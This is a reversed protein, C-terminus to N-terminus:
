AKAACVPCNPLALFPISDFAVEQGDFILLRGKIPNAKGLLISLTVTAQLSSITTVVPSISSPIQRPAFSGAGYFCQICPSEGGCAALVMGLWGDVGGDVVPIKQFHAYRNVILRTEVNDVAMIVIDYGRIRDSVNKEDMRMNFAKIDIEPNFAELRLKALECKPRGIENSRYLFQRNLNSVDVNDYDLIGLSGVGLGALNYLLGSGLGGAGVVLASSKSLQRQGSEGFVGLQRVYRKAQKM